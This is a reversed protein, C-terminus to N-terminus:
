RFKTFIEYIYNTGNRRIIDVPLPPEESIHMLNAKDTIEFLNFPVKTQFYTPLTYVLHPSSFPAAQQRYGPGPADLLQGELSPAAVSVSPFLAITALAICYALSTNM